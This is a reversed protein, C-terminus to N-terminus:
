AVHCEAMGLVRTGPAPEGRGAATLAGPVMGPVLRVERVGADLARRCAELKLAMGGQVKGSRVLEDVRSYNVSELVADGDLVGPVDTLFLLQDAHCYEACAAAMHDANINYLEGGPGMGLSAAVPVLGAQWLREIFEVNAGALYGVFGLGGEEGEVVMPEASFALADAACLGVAPVGAASIAASLRKNLLGGLVMVAVDRTQRDTVRLGKVFRSAIGMRALTATFAKGGGHIVLLQAGERALEAIQRSANQLGETTELLVGAVKVVIRM